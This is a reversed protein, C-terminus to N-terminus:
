ILKQGVMCKNWIEVTREMIEKVGPGRYFGLQWFNNIPDDFEPILDPSSICYDGSGQSLGYVTLSYGSLGLSKMMESIQKDRCYIMEFVVREFEPENQIVMKGDRCVTVATYDVIRSLLRQLKRIELQREDMEVKPRNIQNTILNISKM